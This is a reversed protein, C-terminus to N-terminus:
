LGEAKYQEIRKNLRDIRAENYSVVSKAYDAITEAKIKERHAEILEQEIVKLLTPRAFLELLTGM